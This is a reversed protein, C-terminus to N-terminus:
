LALDFGALGEPPLWAPREGRALHDLTVPTDLDYFVRAPVASGLLLETAAVGDPCYSTVMGADAEALARAAHARIEAWDRYLVIALGPMEVLDRAEAYWRQDREFFTVQHGRRALSRCLARWLTAHGNGWSSTVTLGFVVIRMLRLVGPVRLGSRPPGGYDEPQM